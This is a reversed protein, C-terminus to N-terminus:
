VSVAVMRTELVKRVCTPIAPSLGHWRGAVLPLLVTSNWSPVSATKTGVYCSFRLKLTVGTMSMIFFFLASGVRVDDLM